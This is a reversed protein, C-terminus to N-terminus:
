HHTTETCLPGNVEQELALSYKFFESVDLDVDDNSSTYRIYAGLSCILAHMAPVAQVEGTDDDEFMGDTHNELFHCLVSAGVIAVGELRSKESM